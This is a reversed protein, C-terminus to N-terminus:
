ARERRKKQANGLGYFSRQVLKNKDIPDPKGCESKKNGCAGVFFLEFLAAIRLAFGM